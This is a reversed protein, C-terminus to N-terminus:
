YIYLYIYKFIYTYIYTYTYTYTYIYIYIYLYIYIYIYIFIYLIRLITGFHDGAGGEGDRALNFFQWSAYFFSPTLINEYNNIFLQVFPGLITGVHDWCPGLM